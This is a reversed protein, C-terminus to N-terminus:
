VQVCVLPPLLLLVPSPSAVVLLGLRLALLLSCGLFAVVVVLRSLTVLALLFVVVLLAGLLGSATALLLLRLCWGYSSGCAVVAKGVIELGRLLM